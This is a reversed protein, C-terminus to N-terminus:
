EPTIFEGLREPSFFGAPLGEPPVFEAVDFVFPGYAQERGDPEVDKLQTQLPLLTSKRFETTWVHNVGEPWDGGPEQFWKGEISVVPDGDVTGASSVDEEDSLMHMSFYDLALMAPNEIGAEAAEAREQPTVDHSSVSNSTSSYSTTAWDGGVVVWLDTTKGAREIRRERRFRHNAPDLWAEITEARGDGDGQSWVERAHFVEGPRSVAEMAAAMVSDGDAWDVDREGDGCAFALGGVVAVGAAALLM